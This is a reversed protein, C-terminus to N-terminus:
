HDRECLYYQESVEDVAATHASDRSFQDVFARSLYRDSVLQQGTPLESSHGLSEDGDPDLSRRLVRKLSDNGDMAYLISFTLQDEDVLKYTCAPCAHQLRWDPSDRWLSEAVM